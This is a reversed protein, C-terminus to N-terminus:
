SKKLGVWNILSARGHKALSWLVLFPTLVIFFPNIRFLSAYAKIEGMRMNWRHESLGGQSGVERNISALVKKVRTAGKPFVLRLWLDYDESYLMDERFKVASTNRVIVTPTHAPNRFIFKYFPIEEVLLDSGLDIENFDYGVISDHFFMGCDPHREIVSVMLELKRPHWCDDADLFALYQGKALGIGKNRTFAAGRNSGLELLRFKDNSSILDKVLVRSNDISGDDILIVEFHVYTQKLCSNIAKHITGEANYVPIIVSILPLDASM